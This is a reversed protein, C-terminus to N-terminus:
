RERFQREGFLIDRHKDGYGILGGAITEKAVRDQMISLGRIVAPRAKVRDIWAKLNARAIQSRGLTTVAYPLLAMDAISYTSLMFERNELHRDLLGMQRNMESLYRQIAYPYQHEPAAYFAFHAYQGSMPGQTSAQFFLWQVMQAREGSAKPIFQDHKEALYVLIACSEWLTIKEGGPGLTDIIAPQKNNPNIELFEASLQDGRLIDIEHCHYDLELEELLIAVKQGNPTPGVYLEIVPQASM